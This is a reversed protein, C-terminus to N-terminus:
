VERNYEEAWLEGAAYGEIESPRYRSEPSGFAGHVFGSDWDAGESISPNNAIYDHVAKVKTAIDIEKTVSAVAYGVLREIEKQITQSHDGGNADIEIILKYRQM